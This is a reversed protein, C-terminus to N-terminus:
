YMGCNTGYGYRECFTYQGGSLRYAMQDLERLRNAWLFMYQTCAPQPVIYGQVAAQAARANQRKMESACRFAQSMIQQGEQNIQQISQAYASFAPFAALAGVVVYFRLKSKM